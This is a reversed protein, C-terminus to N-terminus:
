SIPNSCARPSKGDEAEGNFRFALEYPCCFLIGWRSSLMDRDGPNNYNKGIVIPM